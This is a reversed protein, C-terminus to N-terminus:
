CTTIHLKMTGIQMGARPIKAKIAPLRRGECSESSAYLAVFGAIVRISSSVVCSLISAELHTRLFIVQADVFQAQQM